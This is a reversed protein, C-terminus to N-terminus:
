QRHGELGDHGCGAHGGQPRLWANVLDHQAQADLPWSYGLEDALEMLEDQSPDDMVVTADNDIPDLLADHITNGLADSLDVRAMRTLAEGLHEKGVEAAILARVPQSEVLTPCAGASDVFHPAEEM